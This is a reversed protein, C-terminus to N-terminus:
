QGCTPTSNTSNGNEGSEEKWKPTELQGNGHLRHLLYIVWELAIVCLIFENMLQPFASVVAVSLVKALFLCFQTLNM